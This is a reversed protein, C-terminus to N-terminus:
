SCIVYLTLDSFVDIRCCTYFFEEFDEMTPELLQQHLTSMKVLKNECEASIIQVNKLGRTLIHM